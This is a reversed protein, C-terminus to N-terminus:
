KGALERGIKKDSATNSVIRSFAVSAVNHSQQRLRRARGCMRGSSYTLNCGHAHPCPL